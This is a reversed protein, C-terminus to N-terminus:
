VMTCALLSIISYWVGYGLRDGVGLIFEVQVQLFHSNARGPFLLLEFTKQDFYHNCFYYAITPLLLTHHLAIHVVMIPMSGQWIGVSGRAGM